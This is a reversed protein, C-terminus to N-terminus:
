EINALKNKLIRIFAKGIELIFSHIAIHDTNNVRSIISIIIRYAM